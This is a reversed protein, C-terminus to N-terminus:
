YICQLFSTPSPSATLLFSFHHEKVSKGLFEEEWIEVAKNCWAVIACLMIRTGIWIAKWLTLAWVYVQPESESVISGALFLQSRVWEFGINLL